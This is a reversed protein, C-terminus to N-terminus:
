ITVNVYRFLIVIMKYSLMRITSENVEFHIHNNIDLLIYVSNLSVGVLFNHKNYLCLYFFFLYFVQM